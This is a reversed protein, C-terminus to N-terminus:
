YNVEADRALTYQFEDIICVKGDLIAKILLDSFDATTNFSGYARELNRKSEIWTPALDVTITQKNQLQTVRRILESKGVRRRGVIVVFFAKSMINQLFTLVNKRGFFPWPPYIIPSISL